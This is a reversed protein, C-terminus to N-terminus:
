PWGCAGLALGRGPQVGKMSVGICGSYGHACQMTDADSPATSCASIPAPGAGFSLEDLEVAPPATRVPVGDAVERLLDCHSADVVPHM